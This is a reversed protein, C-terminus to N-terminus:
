QFQAGKLLGRAEEVKEKLSEESELLHILEPIDMELLMGTIKPANHQDIQSIRFFLNDGIYQKQYEPPQSALNSLDTGSPQVQTVQMPAAAQTNPINRAANAFKYSNNATNVSKSQFTNQGPRPSSMPMQGRM